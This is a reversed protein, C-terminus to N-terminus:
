SAVGLLADYDTLSPVPVVYQALEGLEGLPAVVVVPEGLHRVLHKVADAEICGHELATAAAVEVLDRGHERHLLLVEVMQRTGEMKGHRATLAEWLADYGQPWAGAQRAQALPLSGRLAGPRHVILDLYHDLALSQGGLGHLREHCAVERGDHICRVERAGLRVEVTLGHLRIPVSYRNNAIRIRGHSDVVARSVVDTDFPQSPLPHLAAREREWAAAITESRGTMVRQDDKACCALLHANYAALDPFEPVPVLHARRFRGQGNEVGGKEHAGDVGPECFVSTFVYHSRLAIFRDTEERKRGQLVRKVALKLNDYRVTDFVGGFHALAENHAELFAQQTAHQFALHFERGSHCARMCFHQLTREVGGLRVVAEYFDVEAEKGPEHTQPVFAQKLLPALERRVQAVERRVTSAAATCGHEVMLREWIRHGTHRQKRPATADALLWEAIIRRYPGMVPSPRETPKRPRPVSSALAERVTRRHVKFRKALARIGLGEVKGARRILEYLRVKTM